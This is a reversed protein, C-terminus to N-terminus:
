SNKSSQNQAFALISEFENADSVAINNYTNRIIDDIRQFDPFIKAKIEFIFYKRGVKQVEIMTDKNYICYHNQQNITKYYM